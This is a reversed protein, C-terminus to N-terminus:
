FPLDDSDDLVMGTSTISLVGGGRVSVYVEDGDKLSAPIPKLADLLIAVITKGALELRGQRENWEINKRRAENLERQRVEPDASWVGDPLPEVKSYGLLKEGNQWWITEGEKKWDSFLNYGVCWKVKHTDCVIWHEDRVNLFGHNAGCHPCGGFYDSVTITDSMGEKVLAPRM